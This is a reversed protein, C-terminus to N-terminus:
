KEAVSAIQDPTLNKLVPSDEIAMKITNQNLVRQLHNGLVATLNQRSLSVCTVEEV